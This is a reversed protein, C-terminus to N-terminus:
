YGRQTGAIEDKFHPLFLLVVPITLIFSNINIFHKSGYKSLLFGKVFKSSNYWKYLFSIM